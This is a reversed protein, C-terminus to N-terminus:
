YLWPQTNLSDMRLEASRRGGCFAFLSAGQLGLLTAENRDITVQEAAAAPKPRRDNVARERADVQARQPRIQVRSREEVCGEDHEHRPVVSQQGEEQAQTVNIIGIELATSAVAAAAVIVVVAFLAIRVSRVTRNM